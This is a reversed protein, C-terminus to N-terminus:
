EQETTGAKIEPPDNLMEADHIAEKLASTDFKLKTYSGEVTQNLEPNGDVIANNALSRFEADLLHKGDCIEKERWNEHSVNRVDIQIETEAQALVTSKTKQFPYGLLSRITSTKGAHGNGIFM